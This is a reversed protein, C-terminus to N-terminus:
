QLIGEIHSGGREERMQAEEEVVLMWLGGRLM